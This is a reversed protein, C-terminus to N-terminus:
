LQLYYDFYLYETTNFISFIDFALNNIIKKVFINIISKLYIIKDIIFIIFINLIMLIIYIHIM